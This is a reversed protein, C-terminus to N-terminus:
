RTTRPWIDDGRGYEDVGNPGVSYLDYDYGITVRRPCEYKLVRGWTDIPFGHEDLVVTEFALLGLRQREAIRDRLAGERGIPVGEPGVAELNVWRGLENIADLSELVPDKLTVRDSCGAFLGVVTLIIALAFRRDGM